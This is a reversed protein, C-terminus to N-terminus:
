RENGRVQEALSLNDDPPEGDSAPRQQTVKEAEDTLEAIRDHTKFVAIAAAQIGPDADWRFDKVADIRPILAERQTDIEAAMAAAQDAYKVCKLWGTADAELASLEANLENLREIIERFM